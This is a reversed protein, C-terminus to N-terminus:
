PEVRDTDPPAVFVFMDDALEEGLRIGTLTIESRNGGKHQLVVKEILKKEPNVEIEARVVTGASGPKPILDYRSSSKKRIRMDRAVSFKGALLASALRSQIESSRREILQGREGEDFPPTYLWFRKGDSVLLNPDPKVTEWRLKDPRKVAIVGTSSKKQKLAAIENVQSFEAIMTKADAYKQEVETLLPPLAAKKKTKAGKARKATEALSGQPEVGLAVSACLLSGLLILSLRPSRGM